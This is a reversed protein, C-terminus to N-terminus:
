PKKQWSCFVGRILKEVVRLFRKKVLYSSWLSIFWIQIFCTILDIITCIKPIMQKRCFSKKQKRCSIGLQVLIRSTQWTDFGSLKSRAIVLDLSVEGPKQLTHLLASCIRSNVYFQADGNTWKSLARSCVWSLVQWGGWETQCLVLFLSYHQSACLRVPSWLIDATCKGEPPRFCCYFGASTPPHRPAAVSPKKVYVSWFLM